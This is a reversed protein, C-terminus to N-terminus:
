ESERVRENTGIWGSLDIGEACRQSVHGLLQAVPINVAREPGKRIDNEIDVAARADARGEL